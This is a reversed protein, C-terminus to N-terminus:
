EIITLKEIGTSGDGYFIHLYFIGDELYSLDLWELKKDIRLSKIVQGQVSIVEIHKIVKSSEIHVLGITPNPFIKIKFEDQPLEQTNTTCELNNIHDWMRNVFITPVLNDDPDNGVRVVVMNKSPVINIIQSNKGLASYMDEPANAILSGDFSIQLQPLMFSSQGNLWWLYGYSPNIDQSPTIMSQFYESDDLIRDTGWAGQNLMLLGFRAMNRPKSFLVNNYGIPQYLGRIGTRLSLKQFLYLNLNSGTANEIVQDLLTYPANHYAWRTGPDTLYMLCDPDTCDLISTADILGTTMSLQNRITVSSEQEATMSTWGSGLYDSTPDDIDLLGDQQALGVLFGTMSKGASAWYWTSDQSFEGFYQELVIKGDKLILFGKTDSEELFDYLSDIKAQCYGLSQPDITEWADGTLPPFYLEQGKIVTLLCCGIILLSFSKM